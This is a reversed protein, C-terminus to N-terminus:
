AGGGSPLIVLAISSFVSTVTIISVGLATLVGLHIAATGADIQRSTPELSRDISIPM